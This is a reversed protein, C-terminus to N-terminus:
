VMHEQKREHYPSWRSRCEKGVRREESRHGVPPRLQAELVLEGVVADEILLTDKRRARKGLGHGEAVHTQANGDALVDPNRVAGRMECPCARVHQEDRVSRRELDLFKM